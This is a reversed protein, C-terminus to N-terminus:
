VRLITPLTLHTYSVAMLMREIKEDKMGWVPRSGGLELTTTVVGLIDDSGVGLAFWKDGMSEIHQM